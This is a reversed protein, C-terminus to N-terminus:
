VPGGDERHLNYTFAKIIDGIRYFTYNTKLVECSIRRDGGNGYPESLARYINGTKHSILISGTLGKPRTLKLISKM